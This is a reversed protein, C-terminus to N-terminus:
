RHCAHDPDRVSVDCERCRFHRCAFGCDACLAWSDGLALHGNPCLMDPVIIRQGRWTVWVHEV